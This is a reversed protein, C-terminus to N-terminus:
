QKKSKGTLSMLDMDCKKLQVRNAVTDQHIHNNKDSNPERIVSNTRVKGLANIAPKQRGRMKSNFDVSEVARRVSDIQMAHTDLIEALPASQNDRKICFRSELKCKTKKTIISKTM